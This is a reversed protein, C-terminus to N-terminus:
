PAMPSPTLPKKALLFGSVGDGFPGGGHDQLTAIEVKLHGRTRQKGSIINAISLVSVVFDYPRLHFM